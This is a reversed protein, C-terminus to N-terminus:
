LYRVYAPFSPLLYTTDQMCPPHVNAFLHFAIVSLHIPARTHKFANYVRGINGRRGCFTTTSSRSSRSVGCMRTCYGETCTYTCACRGAVLHYRFPM